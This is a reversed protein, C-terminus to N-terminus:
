VEKCLTAFDWLKQHGPGIESFLSSRERTVIIVNRKQSWKSFAEDVLSRAFILLTFNGRSTASEIVDNVHEDRMGYGICVLRNLLRPGHVLWMRYKTWLSSYPQSTTDFAKRYQPPIMLNEWAEEPCVKTNIRFADGGSEYWGMSGHLKYLHIAGSDRTLRYKGKRVIEESCLIKEFGDPKFFAKDFGTFGDFVSVKSVVSAFEILPDYNLSFIPIFGETRKAVRQVFDCHQELPPSVTQFVKAIAKTVLLRHPPPTPGGQDLLDLAHEIGETGELDLKAQIEIREIETIDDKIMDWLGFALPYGAGDLYSAGAGLLYGVKQNSLQTRVVHELRSLYDPQSKM